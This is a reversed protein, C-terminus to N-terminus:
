VQFRRSHQEVLFIQNMQVISSLPDAMKSDWRCAERFLQAALQHEIHHHHAEDGGHGSQSGRFGDLLSNASRHGAPRLLEIERGEGFAMSEALREQYVRRAGSSDKAVRKLERGRM